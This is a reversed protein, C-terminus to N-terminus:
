HASARARAKNAPTIAPKVPANTASKIPTVVGSQVTRSEAAAPASKASSKASTKGAPRTKRAPKNPQSPAAQTTETAQLVPEAAEMHIAEAVQVATASETAIEALVEREAILWFHTDDGGGGASESLFYARDRIREELTLQM